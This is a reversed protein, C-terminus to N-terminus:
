ANDTANEMSRTPVPQSTKAAGCSVCFLGSDNATGCSKCTWLPTNVDSGITTNEDGNKRRRRALPISIIVALALVSSLSGGVIVALSFEQQAKADATKATKLKATAASVATTATAVQADAADINATIVNIDYDSYMVTYYWGVTDVLSLYATFEANAATSAAVARVFRKEASDFQAAAVTVAKKTEAANQWTLFGVIGSATILLGSAIWLVTMRRFWRTSAPAM